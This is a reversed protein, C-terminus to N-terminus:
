VCRDSTRALPPDGFQRVIRAGLVLARVEDRDFM